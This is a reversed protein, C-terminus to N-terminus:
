LATISILASKISSTVRIEKSGWELIKTELRQDTNTKQKIYKMIQNTLSNGVKDMLFSEVEAYQKNLDKNINISIYFDVKDVSDFDEIEAVTSKQEISSDTIVVTKTSDIWEVKAGLAESVFRLPVFTRDNQIIAKSDFIMEVGNVIATTSNIKLSIETSSRNIYVLRAAAMWTVECGMTEAIFRIPIMTRGSSVDIFPQADPFSVINNNVKVTVTNTAFSAVSGSIVIVFAIILLMFKKM